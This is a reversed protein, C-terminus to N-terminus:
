EQPEHENENHEALWEEVIEVMAMFATATNVINAAEKFDLLAEFFRDFEEVRAALRKRTKAGLRKVTSEIQSIECPLFLIGLEELRLGAESVQAVPIPEMTELLEEDLGSYVKLQLNDIEQWLERLTTPNDAGVLANHSLQIAVQEPRSLKQDTYLVLILPVDADRAAMVRHNGSLSVFEGSQSRWCFPLSALNGDQAINATLQDYVRKSMYHANKDVPKVDAPSVLALKYPTVEGLGENLANLIESLRAEDAM